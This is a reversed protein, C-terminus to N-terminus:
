GMASKLAATGAAADQIFSEYNVSIFNPLTERWHQVNQDYLRYFKGLSDLRISYQHAVKLDKFYCSLCTDIANRRTEIIAGEPFMAALMGAYAFNLLSKNILREADPFRSEYKELYLKALGGYAENKVRECWKPFMAKRPHHRQMVSSMRIIDPVEGLGAIRPDKSLQEEILTSGSRPMGVIFVPKRSTSGFPRLQRLREATWYTEVDHFFDEHQRANYQSPQCENARRYADFADDYEGADDLCKGLSYHLKIYDESGPTSRSALAHIRDILPDGPAVKTIWVINQYASANAPDISLARDFEQRASEFEGTLVRSYGLNIVYAADRPNAAAAQEYYIAAEGHRADATEVLGMTNLAAANHPAQALAREAAARARTIESEGVLAIAEHILQDISM